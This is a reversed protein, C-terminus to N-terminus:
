RRQPRRAVLSSFFRGDREVADRAIAIEFGTFARQLEGTRLLHAPNAPRRATRRTKEHFTEYVIWGGPAVARALAPLLPRHLFRFVSVLHYRDESLSPEKELDCCITTVRVGSRAALDSARALADPLVDIAEVEYGRTALHVADRGCGCAVDLARRAPNGADPAGILSLAELLFENPRWLRVRAPGRETLLDARLDMSSIEHGRGRLFTMARQARGADSDVVQIAEQERPLEHVRSALEELPISASGPLHGALFDAEPRVDLAHWKDAM